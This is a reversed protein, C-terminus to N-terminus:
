YHPIICSSLYVWSFERPINRGPKEVESSFNITQQYGGHAFSVAVLLVSPRKYETFRAFPHFLCRHQQLLIRYLFAPTILLLILSIKIVSCQKRKLVWTFGWCISETFIVIASIAIAIKVNQIFHIIQIVRFFWGPLINAVWWQLPPVPLRM